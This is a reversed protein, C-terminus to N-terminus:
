YCLSAQPPKLDQGDLILDSWHGLPLYSHLGTTLGPSRRSLRHSNIYIVKGKQSKITIIGDKYCFPKLHMSSNWIITKRRGGIRYVGKESM